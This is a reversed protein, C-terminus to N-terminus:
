YNYRLYVGYTRPKAMSFLDFGLGEIPIIDSINTEDFINRGWVGFEYRQDATLWGVRANVFTRSGDSLRDLNRTDYFVKSRYTADAEVRMKGGMMDWEYQALGNLSFKPANPLTNGSFDGALSRFNRYEASLASAGLQLTLGTIPTAALEAEAGYIRAGSANTFIQETLAGVLILNYVQLDKYDYYFASLNARLRHDFWESKAGIEFANVKEDRYPAVLAPDTAQGGFFGGSKYGRNYTAYVNATDSLQYQLGLKGSLSGFTKSADVTFFTVAGFEANSTYHFTKKDYSYRLGVTGTLRDTLKYDVQGFAAYSTTSQKFPWGFVGISNALDAGGPNEPTPDRALRLIDYYSNTWLYDRAAYVGLVWKARGEGNSQLRLEESGVSQRALYDATIVDNPGADTDEVDNRHATDYGTVSVLSVAGLDWTATVAAGFTRVKDKGQLHYDGQYLNSSTNAYGVVDTCQGSTYFGPACFGDPGTAAATQPLLSRNYAWISGGQSQGYRVQALLSFNPSPTFLLSGRTTWHDQNNGHDGTLRNLTYGDDWTGTAALRFALVDKIIPGGVGGEVNLTNYNGYEVSADASYTQTPKRTIVNIAGGTTNRGYLTGQPGRLVEIRELDFFQGMQALPSGIYVGDVYIGVATATNPNFDNLGVGRIFIKPNAANDDTKISLSPSLGNLDLINNVHQDKLQQASLATISIPVDQVNEARKQATVVLEAVTPPVDAAWAAPAGLILGCLASAGMLGTKM